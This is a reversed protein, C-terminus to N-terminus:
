SGRPGFVIVILFMVATLLVLHDQLRLQDDLKMVTVGTICRLTQRTGGPRPLQSSGQEIRKVQSPLEDGVVGGPSVRRSNSRVVMADSVYGALPLLM